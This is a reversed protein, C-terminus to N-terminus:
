DKLVLRKPGISADTGPPRDIACNPDKFAWHVTVTIKAIVSASPAGDQEIYTAHGNYVTQNTNIPQMNAVTMGNLAQNDAALPVSNQGQTDFFGTPPIEPSMLWDYEAQLGNNYMGYQASVPSGNIPAGTLLGASCWNPKYSKSIKKTFKTPKAGHAQFDNLTLGRQTQTRNMVSYFYPVTPGPTSQEQYTNYLPHYQYTVLTAKYWKFYPALAAARPFQNISFVNAYTVNPNLETFDITEVIRALQNGGSIGRPIRTRRQRRAAKRVVRRRRLPNRARRPMNYKNGTTYYSVKITKSLNLKILYFM